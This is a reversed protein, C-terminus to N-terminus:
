IYIGAVHEKDILDVPETRRDFFKNIRRHFLEPDIKGNIAAQM